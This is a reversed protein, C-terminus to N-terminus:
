KYFEEVCWRMHYLQELDNRKFNSPLNTLLVEYEETSLKIKVVRVTMSQSLVLREEGRKYRTGVPFTLLTQNCHDVSKFVKGWTSPIRFCYKFGKENLEKVLHICPYQRDFVLLHMTPDLNM